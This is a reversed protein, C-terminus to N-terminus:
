TNGDLSTPVEVSILWNGSCMPHLSDVTAHTPLSLTLSYSGADNRVVDWPLYTTGGLSTPVDPSLYYSQAMAPPGLMGLTLLLLFLRKM